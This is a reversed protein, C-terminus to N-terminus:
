LLASKAATPASRNTRESVTRAISRKRFVNLSARTRFRLVYKAACHKIALETPMQRKPLPSYSSSGVSVVGTVQHTATDIVTLSDDRVNVVLLRGGDPTLALREPDPGLPHKAEPYLDIADVFQKTILDIVFLNDTSRNVVRRPRARPLHDAMQRRCTGPVQDKHRISPYLLIASHLAHGRHTRTAWRYM